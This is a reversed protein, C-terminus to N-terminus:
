HRSKVMQKERIGKLVITQTKQTLEELSKTANVRRWRNSRDSLYLLRYGQEVRRYYSITKANYLDRQGPKNIFGKRRLGIELPVDFFLTIDPIIGQTSEENLRTIEELNRRAGYWFFALPADSFRDCLVISEQDLAPKIVERVNLAQAAFWLSIYSDPITDSDIHSSSLLGAVIAFLKERIREASEPGGPERTTVIPYSEDQLRNAISHIVTTKGGGELGEFSIFLRKM